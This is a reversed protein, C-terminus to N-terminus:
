EEEVFDYISKKDQKLFKENPKEYIGNGLSNNNPRNQLNNNNSMTQNNYNQNYQQNNQMM